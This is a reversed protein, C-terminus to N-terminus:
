YRCSNWVELTRAKLALPFGKGFGSFTLTYGANDAAREVVGRIADNPTFLLTLLLFVVVAAPIGCIIYLLRKNM